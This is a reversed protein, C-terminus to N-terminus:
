FLRPEDASVDPGPAAWAGYLGLADGNLVVSVAQVPAALIGERRLSESLGWQSLAQHSAADYLLLHQWGLM